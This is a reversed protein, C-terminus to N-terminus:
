DAIRTLKLDFDLQVTAGVWRTGSWRGQGVKFERRDLSAKGRADAQKGGDSTQFTFEVPVPKSVGHLQLTGKARFRNGDMAQFTDSRYEAQPYKAVDFFESGRLTDDRTDNETDVSKLEVTVDLEGQAQAPDFCFRAAFEKFRGHAPAGAQEGTFKLTSHADDLKWCPPKAWAPTATALVVVVPAIWYAKIM